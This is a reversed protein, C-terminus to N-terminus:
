RAKSFEVVAQLWGRVKGGWGGLRQIKGDVDQKMQARIKRRVKWHSTLCYLLISDRSFFAERITEACGPSCPEKTGLLRGLTRCLIRYFTVVLPPDLWIVDTSDEIFETQRKSMYNGAVVWSGETANVASRLRLRFEEVSVEKWGPQWNIHDLEIYPINLAKSLETALTSQLCPLIGSNGVIHIRYKGTGDGHLPLAM